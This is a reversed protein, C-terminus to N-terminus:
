VFLAHAFGVGVALQPKYLHAVKSKQLQDALSGIVYM